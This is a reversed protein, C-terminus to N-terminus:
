FFDAVLSKKANELHFGVLLSSEDVGPTERREIHERIMQGGLGVISM